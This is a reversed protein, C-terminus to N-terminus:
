CSCSPRRCIIGWAVVYVPVVPKVESQVSVRLHNPGKQTYEEDTLFVAPDYLTHVTIMLFGMKLITAHDHWMALSRSREYSCLLECLQSHSMAMLMEEMNQKVHDTLQSVTMEQITTTPILRMYMHQRNLLAALIDTLSIKRAVVTVGNLPVYKILRYPACPEGSGVCM